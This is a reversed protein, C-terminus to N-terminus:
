ESATKQVDTIMLFVFGEEFPARYVGKGKLLYNAVTAMQWGDTVVAPWARDVLKPFNHKEGFGKLVETKKSLAPLVNANGWSWLWTKSRESYSGVFQFRTTLKRGNRDSFTLQGSTQDVDWREFSLIQYDNNLAEQTAETYRAGAQVLQEWSTQRAQACTAMTTLSILLLCPILVRKIYNFIMRKHTNM